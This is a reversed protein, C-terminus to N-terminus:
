AGAGLLGLLTRVRELQGLDGDRSLLYLPADGASRIRAGLAKLDSAADFWVVCPADAALCFARGALAVPVAEGEGGELLFLFGEHTDEAWQALADASAVRWQQAPLFVCEFQTNYFTLRWEPPMDEPYFGREWSPWSWGLVGLLVPGRIDM